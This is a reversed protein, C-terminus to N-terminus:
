KHIVTYCYIKVVSNNASGNAKGPAARWVGDNNLSETVGKKKRKYVSGNRLPILYLGANKVAYPCGM